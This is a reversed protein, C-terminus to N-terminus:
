PVLTVVLLAYGPYASSTLLLATGPALLAGSWPRAPDGRLLVYLVTLLLLAVAAPAVAPEPLILRLM